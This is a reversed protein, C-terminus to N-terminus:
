TLDWTSTIDRALQLAEATTMDPTFRDRLARSGASIAAESDEVGLAAGAEEFAKDRRTKYDMFVSGGEPLFYTNAEKLEEVSSVRNAVIQEIGQTIPYDLRRTRAYFISVVEEVFLQAYYESLNPGQRNPELPNLEDPREVTM